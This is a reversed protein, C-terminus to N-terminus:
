TISFIHCKCFIHHFVRKVPHVPITLDAPLFQHIRASPTRLSPSAPLRPMDFRNKFPPLILHSVTHDHTHLTIICRSRHPAPLPRRCPDFPRTEPLSSPLPLLTILLKKMATVGHTRDDHKAHRCIGLLRKWADHTPRSQQSAFRRQRDRDPKDRSQLSLPDPDILRLKGAPVRGPSANDALQLLKARNHKRKHQIRKRLRIRKTQRDIHPAVPFGRLVPSLHDVMRCIEHRNQDDRRDKGADHIHRKNQSPPDARKKKKQPTPYESNTYPIRTSSHSLALGGGVCFTRFDVFHM